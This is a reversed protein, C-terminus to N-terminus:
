GDCDVQWLEGADIPTEIGQANLALLMAGTNALDRRDQSSINDRASKAFGFIFVARANSRLAIVTRFGGSRGGGDRAIRQKILGQGLSADILGHEARAVAECQATDQIGEKRQFRRFVKSKLVQMVDTVRHM